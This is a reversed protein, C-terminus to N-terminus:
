QARAEIGNKRREGTGSECSVRRAPVSSSFVHFCQYHIILIGNKISEEEESKAKWFSSDEELRAIAHQLEDVALQQEKYYILSRQLQCNEEEIENFDSILRKEAEKAEKQAKVLPDVKAELRELDANLINNVKTLREM